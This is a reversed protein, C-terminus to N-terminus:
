MFLYVIQPCPPKRHNTGCKRFMGWIVEDHPFFQNCCFSFQWTFSYMGSLNFPCNFLLFDMYTKSYILFQTRKIFRLNSLKQSSKFGHAKCCEWSSEAHSVELWHLCAPHEKPVFGRRSRLKLPSLLSYPLYKSESNPLVFINEKELIM